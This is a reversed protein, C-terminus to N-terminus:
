LQRPSLGCTCEGTDVIQTHPVSAASGTQVRGFPMNDVRILSAPIAIRSERPYKVEIGCPGSIPQLLM